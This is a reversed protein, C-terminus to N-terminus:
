GVEHAGRPFRQSWSSHARWPRGGSPLSMFYDEHHLLLRGAQIDGDVWIFEFPKPKDVQILSSRNAVDIHSLLRSWWWSIALNNWISVFRLVCPHAIEDVATTELALQSALHLKVHLSPHLLLFPKLLFKVKPVHIIHWDPQRPICHCLNDCWKVWPEVRM